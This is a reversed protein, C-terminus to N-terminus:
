EPSGAQNGAQAPWPKEQPQHRLDGPLAADPQKVQAQQVAAVIQRLEAGTLEQHVPLALMKERLARSRPFDAVPLSPHPNFWFLLGMVGYGRLRELFAPAADVAVPFAFPSAGEPLVNFPPPVLHGLHQLLFRYNERRQSATRADTLRPLLRTTMVAPPTAPDQLEFEQHPQFRRVKWWRILPSVQLHLFGIEGRRQAVWNFHRKFTGWLGSQPARTPPPPPVQSIVAGGDPIGYTKYLCFVGMHGLSGVPQGERTALFAQAADEVLLLGRQDCWARWYAADQPFGLYHILYLVRVEGDLLSELEGADPELAANVEYYRIRLGAQLLAEIESGHHYAPVLVVEGAGLGLARFANFIAHRARSYIRCGEQDLPFPVFRSAKQFHVHPPLTPWIALRRPFSFKRM